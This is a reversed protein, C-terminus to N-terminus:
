RLYFYTVLQDDAGEFYLTLRGGNATGFLVSGDRQSTLVIASDEAEWTGDLIVTTDTVVPGGIASITERLLAQESYTRDVNLTISGDLQQLLYGGFVEVLTYPLPQGNITQLAYEGAIQATPSPRTADGSCAAQVLCLAVVGLLKRM